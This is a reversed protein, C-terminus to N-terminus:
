RGAATGTGTGTGSGSGPASAPISEVNRLTAASGVSPTVAPATTSKGKSESAVMSSSPASSMSGVSMGGSQVSSGAMSSSDADYVSSSPQSALSPLGLVPQDVPRYGRGYAAAIARGTILAFAYQMFYTIGFVQV